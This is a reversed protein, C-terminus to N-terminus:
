YGLRVSMQWFAYTMPQEGGSVCVGCHRDAELQACEIMLGLLMCTQTHTDQYESFAQAKLLKLRSLIRTHLHVRSTFEGAALRAALEWLSLMPKEKEPLRERHRTWCAGWQLLSNPSDTTVAEDTQGPLQSRFSVTKSRERDCTSNWPLLNCHKPEPVCDGQDARCRKSPSSNIDDSPQEPSLAFPLFPWLVSQPNGVLFLLDIRLFQRKCFHLCKFLVILCNALNYAPYSIHSPKLPFWKLNLWEGGESPKQEM